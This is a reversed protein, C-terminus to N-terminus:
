RLWFRGPMQSRRAADAAEVEALSSYPVCVIGSPECAELYARASAIM